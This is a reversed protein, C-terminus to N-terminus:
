FSRKISEHMLTGQHFMMRLSGGSLIWVSSRLVQLHNETTKYTLLFAKDDLQKVAFDHANLNQDPAAPLHNIIDRKNYISGSKGFEQFDDCLLEDLVKTSRRVISTHLKKELAEIESFIKM